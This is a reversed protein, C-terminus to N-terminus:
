STVHHLLGTRGGVGGGRDRGRKREVQSGAGCVVRYLGELVQGSGSLSM